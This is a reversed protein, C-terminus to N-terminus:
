LLSQPLPVFGRGRRRSAGVPCRFALSVSDSAVFVVVFVVVVRSKGNKRRRLRHKRTRSVSEWGIDQVDNAAGVGIERIRALRHHTADIEMWLRICVLREHQGGAQVFGQSKELYPFFLAFLDMSDMEGFQRNVAGGEQSVGAPDHEASAALKEIEVVRNGATDVPDRANEPPVLPRPFAVGHGRVAPDDGKDPVVSVDNQDIGM